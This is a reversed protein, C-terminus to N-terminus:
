GMKANEKVKGAERAVSLHGSLGKAGLFVGVGIIMQISDKILPLYLGIKYDMAAASFEQKMVINYSIRYILEPISNALLILGVISYAIIQLEKVGISSCSIVNDSDNDNGTGNDFGSVIWASINDSLIWIIAGAAILVLVPMIGILVTFIGKAGFSIFLQMIVQYAGVAFWNLAIVFVYIALIRILLTALDKAKM